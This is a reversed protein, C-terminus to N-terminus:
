RGRSKDSCGGICDFAEGAALSRPVACGRPRRYIGPADRMAALSVRANVTFRQGKFRGSFDNLTGKDLFRRYIGGARIRRGNQVGTFEVM